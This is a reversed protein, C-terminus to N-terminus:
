RRNGLTNLVEFQLILLVWIFFRGQKTNERVSVHMTFNSITHGVKLRIQASFANLHMNPLENIDNIVHGNGGINMFWYFM